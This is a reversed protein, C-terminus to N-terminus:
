KKSTLFNDFDIGYKKLDKFIPPTKVVVREKGTLMMGDNDQITAIGKLEGKSFVTSTFEENEYPNIKTVRMLYSSPVGDTINLGYCKGIEFNDYLEFLGDKRLKGLEVKTARRAQEPTLVGPDIAKAEMGIFWWFLLVAGVWIALEKITKTGANFALFMIVIIALGCVKWVLPVREFWNQKPEEKEKKKDEEESM